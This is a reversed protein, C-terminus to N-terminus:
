CITWTDLINKQVDMTGNPNEINHTLLGDSCVLSDAKETTHKETTMSGNDPDM